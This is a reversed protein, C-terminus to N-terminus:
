VGASDAEKAPEPMPAPPAPWSWRSLPQRGLTVVTQPVLRQRLQSRHERWEEALIGFILLDVHKGGAFWGRRICGEPRLGCAENLRRSAANDARHISTIRTLRLQDFALDLLLARSRLGLGAGRAGRSVFMPTVADGHVYNIDEIGCFGVLLEHEDEISFWYSKRPEPALIADRWGAALADAGQPVPMQRHFLGLDEVDEYWSAIQPLDTLQLPRLRYRGGMMRTDAM